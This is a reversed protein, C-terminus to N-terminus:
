RKAFFYNKQAVCNKIRVASVNDGILNLYVALLSNDPVVLPNAIAVTTAWCRSIGATKHQEVVSPKASADDYLVGTECNAIKARLRRNRRAGRRSLNNSLM